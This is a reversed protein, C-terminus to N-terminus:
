PHALRKIVQGKEKDIVISYSGGVQGRKRDLSFSVEIINKTPSKIFITATDPFEKVKNIEDIALIVAEKNSIQRSDNAIATTGIMLLLALNLVKHLSITM